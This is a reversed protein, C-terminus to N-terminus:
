LCGRLTPLADRAALGRCDVVIGGTEYGATVGFQVGAGARRAEALVYAMAELPAMHAEDAFM